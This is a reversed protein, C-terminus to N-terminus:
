RKHTDDKVGQEQQVDRNQEVTPVGGTTVQNTSRITVYTTVAALLVSLIITIVESRHASYFAALKSRRDVAITVANRTTNGSIPRELLQFYISCFAEGPSVEIVRDGANFVPIHLQGKFLPDVKLNGVMLGQAGLRGKSCLLGFVNRPIELTQQTAFLVCKGPHLRFPSKLKYWRQDGPVQYQEGVRLDVTVFEGDADGNASVTIDRYKLDQKLLIM